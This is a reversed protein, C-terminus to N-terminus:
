SQFTYQCGGVNIDETVKLLFHLSLLDIVNECVQKILLLILKLSSLFSVEVVFDM